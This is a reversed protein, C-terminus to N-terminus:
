LGRSSRWRDYRMLLNDEFALGRDVSVVQGTMGDFLGSCLGLIARGCDDPSLFSEEGLGESELFDEFTEGFMQAFSDTKVMGFRIVNVRTGDNQLHAAMYRAFTELVGKSAAVFDYGPYRRDEGDSSVGVIYRPYRGFRTGMAQTYAVMPWASYELTKFFSRMKYDKLTPTRQAFAVNSVFVDVGDSRESIRDFLRETDESQTVDAEVIIPSPAGLADFKRQIEELDATGWKYTLVVQAKAAGLCLGAALGIGRTGGTILATQGAMDVQYTMSDGTTAM